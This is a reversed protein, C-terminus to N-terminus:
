CHQKQLRGLAHIGYAAFGCLQATSSDKKRAEPFPIAWIQRYLETAEYRNKAAVKPYKWSLQHAIARHIRRLQRPIGLKGDQIIIGTIKKVEKRYTKLKKREISLGIKSLLNITLRIVEKKQTRYHVITIDDAYRVAKWGRTSCIDELQQDASTMRWNFFAPSSPAGTALRDNSTTAIKALINIQWNSLPTKV